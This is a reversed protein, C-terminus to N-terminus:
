TRCMTAVVRMQMIKGRVYTIRARVTEQGVVWLVVLMVVSEVNYITVHLLNALMIKFLHVYCM